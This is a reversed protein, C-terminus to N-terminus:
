RIEETSPDGDPFRHRGTSPNRVWGKPELKELPNWDHFDKMAGALTSYCWADEFFPSGIYGIVVKFTYLQPYVWVGRGDGAYKFALSGMQGGAEGKPLM